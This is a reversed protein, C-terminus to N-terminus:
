GVTTQVVLKWTGNWAAIPGCSATCELTRANWEHLIDHWPASRELGGPPGVIARALKRVKIDLKRLDRQLNQPPSRCFMCGIYGYRRFLGITTMSTPESLNLRPLFARPFPFGAHGDAAWKPRLTHFWSQQM